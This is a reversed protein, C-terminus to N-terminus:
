PSTGPLPHLEVHVCALLTAFRDQLAHINENLQLLEETKVPINLLRLTKVATAEVRTPTDPHPFFWTDHIARNRQEGLGRSDKAFAELDKALGKSIGKFRSLAIFADLKRGSGSIQATFCVGIPADVGALNISSSDILAELYSWSAAVRGIAAYHLMEIRGERMVTLEAPDTAPISGLLTGSPKFPEDTM